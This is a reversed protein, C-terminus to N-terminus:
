LIIKTGVALAGPPVDRKVDAGPVIIAGAGIKVGDAISVSDLRAPGYLGNKLTFRVRRGDPTLGHGSAFCSVDDGIKVGSGIEVKGAACFGKGISVDDGVSVTGPLDVFMNGDVRFNKGHGPFLIDLIENKRGASVNEGDYEACLSHAYMYAKGLSVSVTNFQKGELARRLDERGVPGVDLVPAVVQGVGGARERDANHGNGGLGIKRYYKILDDIREKSWAEGDKEGRDYVSSVPKAPRGIYLTEATAERDLVAGAAIVARDGVDASIRSGSCLWTDSGIKVTALKVKGDERRLPRGSVTVGNAFVTFNGCTVLATKDFTAGRNVYGKGLFDVLGIVMSLNQGVSSLTGKIPFLLSLIKKKKLGIGAHFFLSKGSVGKGIANYKECLRASLELLKLYGKDRPDFFEGSYMKRIEILEEDEFGFRRRLHKIKREVANM